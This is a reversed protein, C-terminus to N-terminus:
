MVGKEVATVCIFLLVAMSANIIEMLMLVKSMKTPSKPFIGGLDVMYVGFYLVALVQAARVAYHNATLLLYSTGYSALGLTILFVNFGWFVIGKLASFDRNEIPGGPVLVTLLLVNMFM